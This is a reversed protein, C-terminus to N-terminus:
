FFKWVGSKANRKSQRKKHSPQLTELTQSQEDSIDLAPVIDSSGGSLDGDVITAFSDNHSLDSANEKDVVILTATPM